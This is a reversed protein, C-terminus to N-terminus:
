SNDSHQEKHKRIYAVLSISWIIVITIASFILLGLMLLGEGLGSFMIDPDPKFIFEVYVFYCLSITLMICTYVFATKYRDIFERRYGKLGKIGALLMMIGPVLFILAFSVAEMTDVSKTLGSEKDVLVTVTNDRNLNNIQEQSLGVTNSKSIKVWYHEGKYDYEVNPISEEIDYVIGEVEDLSYRDAVTKSIGLLGAIMMIVGLTFLIRKRTM